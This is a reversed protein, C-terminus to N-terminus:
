YVEELFSELAFRVDVAAEVFGMHGSGELVLASSDRALTLQNPMLAYPVAPDQKGVIWLVPCSLGAIVQQRDPRERMGLLAAKIGEVPTQVAAEQLESIAKPFHAVNDPAFLNPIAEKVFAVHNNEVAAVARLRNQKKEEGDATATSHLMCLGALLAPNKEAIALSVYGGMSHGVLACQTIELAALTELVVNAMLEMTHNEAFAPTNGHGPLDICVVTYHTALMSALGGWMAKSELFGHLLVVVPGEGTKQYAVPGFSTTLSFSM